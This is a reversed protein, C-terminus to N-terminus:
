VLRENLYLWYKARKFATAYRVQRVCFICECDMKLAHDPLLVGGSSMEIEPVDEARVPRDREMIADVLEELLDPANDGDSTDICM